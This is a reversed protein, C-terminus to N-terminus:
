GGLERTPHIFIKQIAGSLVTAMKKFERKNQLHKNNIEVTFVDIDEEEGLHKFVGGDIDEVGWPNNWAVRYDGERVLLKFLEKAKECSEYGIVDIDVERNEGNYFPYFSHIQILVVRGMRKKVQHALEFGRKQYPAVFQKWRRAEEPDGGQNAPILIFDEEGGREILLERKLASAHFFDLKRTRADLRRNSDIVLRSFLSYLFGASLNAALAKM